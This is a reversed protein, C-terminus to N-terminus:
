TEGEERPLEGPLRRGMKMYPKERKEEVGEGQVDSLIGV